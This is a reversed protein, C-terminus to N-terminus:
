VVPEVAVQRLVAVPQDKIVAQATTALRVAIAAVAAVLGATVAVVVVAVVSAV